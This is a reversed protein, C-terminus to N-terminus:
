ASADPIRRSCLRRIRRCRFKNGRRRRGSTSLAVAKARIRSVRHETDGPRLGADEIDEWGICGSEIRGEEYARRIKDKDLILRSERLAFSRDRVFVLQQVGRYSHIHLERM